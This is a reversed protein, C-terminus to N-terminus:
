TTAFYGAQANKLQEMGQDIQRAAQYWREMTNPLNERLYISKLIEPKLGQQFRQVLAEYETIQAAHALMIFQNIYEDVRKTQRLRDLKRKSDGKKDTGVFAPYFHNLYFENITMNQVNQTDLFHSTFVAARGKTCYSLFFMIKKMDTDYIHGNMTFYVRCSTVFTELDDINGNFPQPRNIGIEGM